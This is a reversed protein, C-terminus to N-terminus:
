KETSTPPTAAAGTSPAPNEAATEASKEDARNADAPKPGAPNSDASRAEPKSGEAKLKPPTSWAALMASPRRDFELRKLKDLRATSKEKKEEGAPAAPAPEQAPAEDQGAVIVIPDQFSISAPAPATSQVAITVQALASVLFSLGSSM